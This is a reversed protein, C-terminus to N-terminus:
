SLLPGIPTLTRRQVIRVTDTATTPAPDVGERVVGECAM